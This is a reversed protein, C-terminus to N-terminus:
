GLQSISGRSVANFSDVKVGFWRVTTLHLNAVNTDEPCVLHGAHRLKGGLGGVMVIPLDTNAHEQGDKLPSGFFVM